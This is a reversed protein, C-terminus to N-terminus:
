PPPPCAFHISTGDRHVLGKLLPRVRELGEIISEYQEGASEAAAPHYLNDMFCGYTEYVQRWGSFGVPGAAVNKAADRAPDSARDAAPTATSRPTGEMADVDGDKVYSQGHGLDEHDLHELSLEAEVEELVARKFEESDEQDALEWRNLDEISLVASGGILEAMNYEHQDPEPDNAADTDVMGRYRIGLNARIFSHRVADMSISEWAAKLFNAADLLNAPRGYRVGACDLPLSRASEKLQSRVSDHLAHFALVEKLHLFKYRKKLSAILEQDIALKLCAPITILKVKEQELQDNAMGQMDNVLLLVPQSTFQRVCPCFVEDFWSKLVVGDVCAQRQSFYPTPWARAPQSAHGVIACPIRHSGTANACVLVSIRENQLKAAPGSTIDEESPLLSHHPLMRYFLGTEAISYVNEAPFKAIIEALKQLTDHLDPEAKSGEGRLMPLGKRRRFSSFWKWSAKFSKESGGDSTKALEAAKAIAMSPSVQVKRKQCGDVWRFLKDELAPFLPASARYTKIRKAMSVNEARRLISNKQKLLKRIAGESVGYERSVARQSMNSGQLKAIIELRETDNLRKAKTKVPAKDKDKIGNEM